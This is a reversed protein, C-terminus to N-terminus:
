GNRTGLTPMGGKGFRAVLRVNEGAEVTVDQDIIFIGTGDVEVKINYTGPELSEPGAVDGFEFDDLFLAGDVYVDVTAEKGLANPDELLKAAAAKGNIRHEVSVEALHGAAFAPIALAMALAAAVAATVIRRM